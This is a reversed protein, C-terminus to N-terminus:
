WRLLLLESSFGPGFAACLGYDGPRPRSKRCHRDLIFLLTPSSMNGFRDLVYRSHELRDSDLQLTKQFSSLVKAGGPHVIFHGIDELGLGNSGLFEEVNARIKQQIISPIERSFIVELGSETFEWGMVELTEAWINSMTDVIRPSGNPPSHGDILVAAAGDSFLSCAVLNSKSYDHFQFTLSCLEVAVLLVRQGSSSMALDRLRSLGAAGGACGLGFIPTRKVSPRFGMSNILRADISPTAMGSTSVFVLHDIDSPALGAQRLCNEIASRSLREAWCIYQRNTETFSHPTEFWDLPVCLFRRSVSVNSFVPILRSADRLGNSFHRLATDRIEEQAFGYPPVATGISAIRPM